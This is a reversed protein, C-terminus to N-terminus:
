PRLVLRAYRERAHFDPKGTQPPFSSLTPKGGPEDYDYRGALFEWSGDRPDDGLSQWPILLVARWGGEIRGARVEGVAPLASAQRYGSFAYVTKRGVPTAHLEVYAPRGACGLFIEVVDGLKFHDLGDREGLSIVSADRCLFEFFVASENWRARVEAPAAAAGVGRLIAAPAGSWSARDHWATDMVLGPAQIAELAPPAAGSSVAALCLMATIPRIM